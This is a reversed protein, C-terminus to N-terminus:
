PPCDPCQPTLFHRSGRVSAAVECADLANRNANCGDTLKAQSCLSTQVLCSLYNNYADSCGYDSARKSTYILNQFCAERDSANGAECQVLQNCYTQEAGSCGVTAVLFLASVISLKRM